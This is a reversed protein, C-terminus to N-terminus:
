PRLWEEPIGDPLDFADAPDQVVRPRVIVWARTSTSSGGRRLLGSDSQQENSETSAIIVLTGSAVVIETSAEVPVTEWVGRGPGGGIDGVATWIRLRINGDEQVTPEVWLRPGASATQGFPGVLTVQSSLNASSGSLVVLQQKTERQIAQKERALDLWAAVDLGGVRTAIGINGRRRADGVGAAVVNSSFVVRDLGIRSARSEDLVVTLNEIAVHVPEQAGARHSALLMAIAVVILAHRM